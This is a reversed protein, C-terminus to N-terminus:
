ENSQGNIFGIIFLIMFVPWLSIHLVRGLDDNPKGQQLTFWEWFMAWLLGYFIYDVM